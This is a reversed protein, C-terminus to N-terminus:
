RSPFTAVARSRLWPEPVYGHAQYVLGPLMSYFSRAVRARVRPDTEM